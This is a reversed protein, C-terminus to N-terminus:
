KQERPLEVEPNLYSDKPLTVYPIDLEELKKLFATYYRDNEFTQNFNIHFAGATESLVVCLSGNFVDPNLYRVETIQDSYDNTRLSGVYDLTFTDQPHSESMAMLKNKLFYGPLKKGLHTIMNISSFLLRAHTEDMMAKTDQRLEAGLEGTSMASCESPHAPLFYASACNKFTKDAHLFKRLSAPLVAMVVGDKVQCEKAIVQCLMAALGSGPTAGNSKCWTLLAGTEIKVPYRVM